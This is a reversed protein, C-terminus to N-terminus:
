FLLFYQGHDAEYEMRKDAQRIDRAVATPAAAMSHMGGSGPSSCSMVCAWSVMRTDGRTLRLRDGRSGFFPETSACAATRKM